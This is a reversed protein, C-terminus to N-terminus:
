LAIAVSGGEERSYYWHWHTNVEINESVVRMCSNVSVLRMCHNSENLRYHKLLDIIEM